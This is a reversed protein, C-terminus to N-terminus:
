PKDITRKRKPLLLVAKLLCIGGKKMMPKGIAIGNASQVESHGFGKFRNKILSYFDRREKVLM